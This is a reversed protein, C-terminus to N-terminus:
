VECSEKIESIECTEELLTEQVDPYVISDSIEHIRQRAAHVMPQWFKKFASRFMPNIAIFMVGKSGNRIEDAILSDIYRLALDGQTTKTKDAMTSNADFDSCLNKFEDDNWVSAIHDAYDWITPIESKRDPISQLRTDEKRVYQALANPKRAKEIHALPFVKKVASFRIQPTQLMGQYHQKETAPCLELQGSLVWGAPLQATKYADDFITVSWCASRVLSTDVYILSTDTM